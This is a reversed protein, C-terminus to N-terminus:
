VHYEVRRTIVDNEDLEFATNYGKFNLFRMPISDTEDKWDEGCIRIADQKTMGVKVADTVREAIM